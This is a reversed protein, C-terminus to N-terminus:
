VPMSCVRQVASLKRKSMGGSSLISRQLEGTWLANLNIVEAINRRVLHGVEVVTLKTTQVRRKIGLALEPRHLVLKGEQCVMEGIASGAAVSDVRVFAKQECQAPQSCTPRLDV